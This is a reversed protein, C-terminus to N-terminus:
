GGSVFVIDVADELRSVYDRTVFRSAERDITIQSVGSVKWWYIEEPGSTTIYLELANLRGGQHAHNLLVQEIDGLEEELRPTSSAETQLVWALSAEYGAEPLLRASALFHEAIAQKTSRSQTTRSLLELRRVDPLAAFFERWFEGDLDDPLPGLDLALETVTCAAFVELFQLFNSARRFRFVPAVRLREAGRVFGIMSVDSRSPDTYDPDYESRIYLRDITPSTHLGSIRRPLISPLVFQDGIDSDVEAVIRTTSPFSLCSLFSYLSSISGGVELLCLSPLAVIRNLTQGGRGGHASDTHLCLERIATLAPCGELADLLGPLTEFDRPGYLTIAHLSPVTMARCFLPADTRLRRLCPLDEAKWGVLTLEEGSIPYDVCLELTELRRMSTAVVRFVDYFDSLEDVTVEFTTIRDFRDEFAKWGRSREYSMTTPWARLKLPLPASRDLFLDVLYRRCDRSIDEDEDEDDGNNRNYPDLATYLGQLWYEPTALLVLRWRRCVSQLSLMWFPNCWGGKFPVYAFVEQLIETPLNNIPAISNHIADSPEGLAVVDGKSGSEVFALEPHSLIIIPEPHAMYSSSISHVM